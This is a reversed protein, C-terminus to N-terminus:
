RTMRLEARSNADRSQWESFKMKIWEVRVRAFNAEKRAAVMDKIYQAWEPRAKVRREAHSDPMDGETEILTQKYNELTVTKLDEFLQAAAEAEVWAKAALRYQESLPREAEPIEAIKPTAREIISM